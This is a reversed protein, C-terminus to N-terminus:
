IWSLNIPEVRAYTRSALDSVAVTTGCKLLRRELCTSFEIWLDHLNCFLQNLNSPSPLRWFFVYEGMQWVSNGGRILTCQVFVIKHGAICERGWLGCEKQHQGFPAHGRPILPSPIMTMTIKRPSNQGLPFPANLNVRYSYLLFDQRFDYSADCLTIPIHREQKM